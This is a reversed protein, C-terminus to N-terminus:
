PRRGGGRRPGTQGPALLPFIQGPQVGLQDAIERMSDTAKAPIGREQLARLANEIPVGNEDCVEQLTMRGMGMGQQGRGRPSAGPGASATIITFIADPTTHHQEALEQVTSGPLAERYGHERLRETLVDLPIGTREALTVLTSLEAHPYPASPSNAEWYNKFSEGMDIVNSFPPVMALTGWVFVAVLAVALGLELPHWLRFRFADRLYRLLARWNLYIHLITLFIFLLAATTHVAGWTEKGLGWIQWGTWNAVRGRPSIYLIVGSVALLLFTLTIAMSVLSRWSFTRKESM